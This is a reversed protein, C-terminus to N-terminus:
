DNTKRFLLTVIYNVVFMTDFIVFTTDVIHAHLVLIDLLMHTFIECSTVDTVSMKIRGRFSLVHQTMADRIFYKLCSDM